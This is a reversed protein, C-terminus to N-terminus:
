IKKYYKDRSNRKFQNFNGISWMNQYSKKTQKKHVYRFAIISKNNWRIIIAMAMSMKVNANVRNGKHSANVM